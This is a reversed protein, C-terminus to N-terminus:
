GCMCMTGGGLMVSFLIMQSSVFVGPLCQLVGFPCVLVRLFRMFVRFSRRLIRASAALSTLM